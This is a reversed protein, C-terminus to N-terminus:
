PNFGSDLIFQLATVPNGNANLTKSLDVEDNVSDYELGTISGGGGGILGWNTGDYILLVVKDTSDLSYDDGSPTVINGTGHKLVVTRADDAAKLLLFEENGASRNITDLDDTSADGETDVTHKSQDVTISGSSITKETASTFNIGSVNDVDNDSLDLDDNVGIADGGGDISKIDNLAHDQIDITGDSRFIAIMSSSGEDYIELQDDTSNYKISYDSDSGFIAKIDDPFPLNGTLDQSGDRDLKHEELEEFWEVIVNQAVTSGSSHNAAATSDYGRTLSELTDANRNGVLIKEDGVRIVFNGTPFRDGTGAKLDFSTQTATIDNALQSRARDKKNLYNAM